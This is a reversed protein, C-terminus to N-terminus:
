YEFLVPEHKMQYRHDLVSANLCITGKKWSEMLKTFIGCIHFRPKIEEIRTLLDECGAQEGHITRDPIGYAPGHTVLINTDAPILNWHM